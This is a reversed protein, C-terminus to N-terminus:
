NAGLEKRLNKNKEKEKEDSNRSLSTFIKFIIEM